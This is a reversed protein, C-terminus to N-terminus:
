VLDRPIKAHWNRSFVRREAEYADLEAEILFDARTARMRTRTEVRVEWDGRARRTTWHIFNDASLPDDRGIRYVKRAVEELELGIADIRQVGSDAISTYTMADSAVDYAFTREFGGPRLVTRTEPPASEADPFPLLRADDDRPRRVPLLLRSGATSVIVTAAEPSPWAIPWYTTSLALRIRHGPPFAHAIDNLRLRVAYRRGPELPEPHEHSERHSLNLLGYAVRLSAGDPAVDCLRACLFGNPKDASLELALEPAGLIELREALPESDFCVAMGDDARQDWPADANVGYGCWSGAATGLFQPTKIAVEADSTRRAVNQKDRGPRVWADMSEIPSEDRAPPM